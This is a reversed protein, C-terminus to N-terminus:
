VAHYNKLVRGHGIDGIEWVSFTRGVTFQTHAEPSLFKVPAVVTAGPTISGFETLDFRSSWHEGDIGLIVSYSDPPTAGLRGGQETPLLEVEVLIDPSWPLPAM